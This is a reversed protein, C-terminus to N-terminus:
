NILTKTSRCVVTDRTATEKDCYTNGRRSKATSAVEKEFSRVVMRWLISLAAIWFPLHHHRQASLSLSVIRSHEQVYTTYINSDHSPSGIGIFSSLLLDHNPSRVVRISQPQCRPTLAYSLRTNSRHHPRRNRSTLM